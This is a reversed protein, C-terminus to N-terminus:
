DEKKSKLKEADTKKRKPKDTSAQEGKQSPAIEKSVNSNAEKAKEMAQREAELRARMRNFASLGM